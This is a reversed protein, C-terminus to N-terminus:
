YHTSTYGVSGVLDKRLRTIQKNLADDTVIQNPWVHDIIEEKTVVQGNKEILLLLIDFSKKGIKLQTKAQYLERLNPHVKYDIFTYIAQQNKKQKTM